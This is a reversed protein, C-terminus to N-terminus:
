FFPPLCFFFFLLYRPVLVSCQKRKAPNFPPPFFSPFFSLSLLCSFRLPRRRDDLEVNMSFHTGNFLFPFSPPFFSFFPFSLSFPLLRIHMSDRAAYKSILHASNLFEYFLFFFFFFFLSLPFFFSCSSMVKSNAVLKGDRGGILSFFLLFPTFNV